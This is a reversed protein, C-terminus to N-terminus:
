DDAAPVTFRIQAPSGSASRQVGNTTYNVVLDAVIEGVPNDYTCTLTIPASSAGAAIETGSLDITNGLIGCSANPSVTLSSNSLTAKATGYNKLTATFTTTGKRIGNPQAGDPENTYGFGTIKVVPRSNVFRQGAAVTTTGPVLEVTQPNPDLEYGPPAATETIVYRGLRQGAVEFQGPDADADNGTYGQQGTNDVVVICVPTIPDFAQTVLNYDHTRCLSFTAGGQLEGAYEKEWTISGAIFVKVADPSNPTVGDTERFLSQGGVLFTVAAHGTVTGATASTFTISCAGGVTGDPADCTNSSIVHAAGDTSTLTVLVETGNPAPGFGDAGDGGPAGSALGDDQFVNVTFTHDDGVINTANPGITIYADVFRKTAPGSGVPGNNGSTSRVVTDSNTGDSFTISVSANATFLGAQDDSITITCTYPGAVAVTDCNSALEDPAPSVSPTITIASVSAGAPANPTVTVTFVHDEGVENVGNPAIAISADVFRKVADGSNGAQGNTEVNFTRGEFTVTAAAHGTVTGATNSTFTVTCEGSANTGTTSCNEAVPVVVAGNTATLTVNPKVGAIPTEQGTVGAFVKVTFTHNEGVENVDDPTISIKAGCVEFNGLIFDKPDATLSASSRSTAMFSSFCGELGFDSLNIAGELFGGSSIEDNAPESKGSYAWPSEITTTNVTACLSPEPTSAPLCDAAAGRELLASVSGAPGIWEFVRVTTTAGGGTFTTLILIDGASDNSDYSCAPLPGNQGGPVNGGNAQVCFKGDSGPSPATHVGSFLGDATGVPPIAKVEDHFFWFGADKTGNTAFRDAGFYLHQEGSSDIYKAAFGDDLEDADPVSQDRWQWRPSPGSIEDYDKSQTFISTGRGDATFACEIAGLSTCREADSGGPNAAIADYIQEWDDGPAQADTQSVLLTVNEAKAHDSNGAVSRTVPYNTRNACGGGPASSGAGVTMREADILITSGSALLAPVVQCIQITTAATGTPLAVNLVGVLQSVNNNTADKDLEFLTRDVQAQGGAVLVVLCATILLGALGAFGRTQRVERKGLKLPAM